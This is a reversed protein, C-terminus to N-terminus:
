DDMREMDYVMVEVVPGTYAKHAWVSYYAASFIVVFGTVLVSYNMTSPTVPTAPPWFSFFIIIVLFACGIINIVIGLIGPIHFPGWALQNSQPINAANRSTLERTMIGGTCRRWLLLSCCAFYSLFLSAVTLSLVDNLAVTSGISILSLLIAISSTVGIAVLPLSSQPEVRSLYRWGPVGRDRAFSWTLRSSSALVAITACFSLVIVLAIMAASGGASGTGQRFIEMFPYGTRSSLAEDLSGVAFLVAVLMGFGLIGNLLVSCLMSAPVIKSPNRIEESMHIAGDVGLFAFVNGILGVFFSLGQSPWSGGNLFKGFVDTGSTHPPLYALPILVAFFGLVHLVLILSEIKPLARSVVTNVLVACAAVAWFLFTGHWLKPNYGPHQLIVLGQILTGSLYCASAVFAQWGAVTLWGTLYSLFKRCFPPALLAVWHYQGSSTPAMSALEAMTTFVALTGVWALLYGYVLGAPGGNSLGQVFVILLGEWTVLMTCSFGLMSMFGFNRQLVQKKGLRALEDRDRDDATRQEVRRTQRKPTTENLEIDYLGDM